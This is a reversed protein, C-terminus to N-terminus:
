QSIFFLSTVARDRKRVSSLALIMPYLAKDTCGLDASPERLLAEWAGGLHQTSVGLAAM